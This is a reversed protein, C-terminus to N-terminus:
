METSAGPVCSDDYHFWQRGGHASTQYHGSWVSNGRHFTLGVIVHPFWVITEDLHVPIDIELSDPLEVATFSKQQTESESIRYICIAFSQWQKLLIELKIVSTYHTVDLKSGKESKGEAVDQTSMM